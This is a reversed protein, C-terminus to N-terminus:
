APTIRAKPKTLALGWLLGILVAFLTVTVPMDLAIDVASAGLLVLPMALLVVWGARRIVPITAVIPRLILTAAVIHGALYPLGGVMMVQLVLNHASNVAWFKQAMRPTTLAHASAQSYTGLGYGTLPQDGVLGAVHRWLEVRMGWDDGILQFRESVIDGVCWWLVALAVALAPAALRYPPLKPWNQPRFFGLALWIGGGLAMVTASRSGSLFLVIVLLLLAFPLAVAGIRAQNAPGPQPSRTSLLRAV